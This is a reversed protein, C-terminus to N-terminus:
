GSCEVRLNAVEATLEGNANVTGHGTLHMLANPEGGTSILNFTSTSTTETPAADTADQTLQGGGVLVGVYRHGTELGVGELGGSASRTVFSIHTIEEDNNFVVTAHIVQQLFGSFAITETCATNGAVFSFPARVVTTSTTAAAAAFAPTLLLLMLAVVGVLRVTKVTGQTEAM